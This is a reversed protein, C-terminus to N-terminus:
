KRAASAVVEALMARLEPKQQRPATRDTSPVTPATSTTDPPLPDIPVPHKPVKLIKPKATPPKHNRHLGLRNLKGSVTSRSLGMVTAIEGASRGSQWLHTIQGVLDPTWTKRRLSAARM